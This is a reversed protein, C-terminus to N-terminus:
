HIVSCSLILLLKFFLFLLRGAISFEKTNSISAVKGVTEAEELEVALMIM